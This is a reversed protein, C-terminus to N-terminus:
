SSTQDLRRLEAATETIERIDTFRQTKDSVVGISLRMLPAMEGNALEIGGQERHIFNYHSKVGEDFRERLLKVMGPIDNAKSIIIFTDNGPHGIFDNLTGKDNMVENMVMAAFRLVEDGAVFGYEDNFPRLHDIGVLMLSWDATRMLDRLQEELLRGSPLGTKPDSMNLRQHTKIATRVRLKLEEIDFPKTIYDDAGLELGAIRDSREDRQTLFIIPIHSTRTNTRLERCVAYGDMDPLMIDLVILDPLQKRCQDLADGGRAAVEVNYGQGTFFIRLMNSIDFDDEVVLIRGNSM